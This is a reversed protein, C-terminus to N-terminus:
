VITSVNFLAASIRNGNMMPIKGINMPKVSNPIAKNQCVLQYM